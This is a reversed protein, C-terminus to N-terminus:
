RERAAAAPEPRLVTLGGMYPRIAPPLEVAGSEDQYTELLAVMLRPLAVGSANLTHLLRSKGGGSPRMRISARRAQFDEFNSCSSVELWRAEGPAWVELDYCKAAAFSLDGASLALVRYHLGLAKLVSEADALLTEHEEYSRDPHVFKVLEVKDFQHLRLLGRTDRGAAGAERRFCATYGVLKRPLDEERLTEDRYLNTIPVEATPILFLDDGGVYYMDERLKPLQGTAVLCEPRVLYPTAIEEYGHKSTHLDLMFQILARSLQAGRGKLLSFGAGSLKAAREPDLIGLMEGLEVHNRKPGGTRPAGEVRVVVNDEASDGPPTSSHPLNPVWRQLEELEEEVARVRGDLADIAEGVQRMRAMEAAADGGLQREAGIQKSVTNREHKLTEVEALLDRREGDLALIRDLDVPSHKLAVAARVRDTEQRILKLDLM